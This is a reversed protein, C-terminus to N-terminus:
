RWSCRRTPKATTVPTCSIAFAASTSVRWRPEPVEDGLDDAIRCFAYVNCFDQRLHRPLLFSVVSFNEYHSHALKRTYAQAQNIDAVPAFAARITDPLGPLVAGASPTTSAIQSM